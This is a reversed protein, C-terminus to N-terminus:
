DKSGSSPWRRVMGYQNIGFDLAKWFSLAGTNFAAVNLGVLRVGIELVEAILGEAVARGFGQLRAEPRIYFEQIMMAQNDDVLFYVVFGVPQDDDLVIKAGRGAISFDFLSSFEAEFAPEDKLLPLEPGLETWYERIMTSLDALHSADAQLIQM